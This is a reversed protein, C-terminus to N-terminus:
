RRMYSFFAYNPGTQPIYITSAYVGKWAKKDYSPFFTDCSFDDFIKTQWIRKVASNELASKYLVAGGIIFVREIEGSEKKQKALACMTDWSECSIFGEKEFGSKSLLVNIRNPLAGLPLSEATKRGMVIMNQADPNQTKTTIGKFRKLDAPCKWPLDNHKGIGNKSDTAVILEFMM